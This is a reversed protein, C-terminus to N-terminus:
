DKIRCLRCRSSNRANPELQWSCGNSCKWWVMQRAYAGTEKPSMQNKEYDWQNLLFPKKKVISKEFSVKHPQSRGNEEYCTKCGKGQVRSYVYSQYIHERNCIWTALYHSGKPVENPNKLNLTKHWENALDPRLAALSNTQNVRKGACYPCNEGGNTRENVIKGYSSRCDSCKWFVKQNSHGFIAEPTLEGNFAYDWELAISPYLQALSREVTLDNGSCFRCGHGKTRSIIKADFEHGNECKWWVQYNSKSKFHQPKFPANREYHWEKELKPYLDRLNDKQEVPPLQKLIPITDQLINVEKIIKEDAELFQLVEQICENISPEGSRKYSYIKMNPHTFTFESLGEERIRLLDLNKELILKSKEEDKNKKNRHTHRGDYEIALHICPIFLDVSRFPPINLIEDIRTDPFVKKVYFFLSLEPFSHNWRKM